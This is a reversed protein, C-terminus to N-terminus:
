PMLLSNSSITSPNQSLTPVTSCTLQQRRTDLNRHLRSRLMEPGCVRDYRSLIDVSQYILDAFLVRPASSRSLILSSLLVFSIRLSTAYTEVPVLTIVPGPYPASCVSVEFVVVSLSPLRHSIPQTDTTASDTLIVCITCYGCLWQVLVVALCITVPQM